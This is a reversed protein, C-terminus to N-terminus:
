EEEYGVGLYYKIFDAEGVEDIAKQIFHKTKFHLTDMKIFINYDIILKELHTDYFVYYKPISNDEWEHKNFEYAYKKVKQYVQERKSNNVELTDNGNVYDVIFREITELCDIKEKIGDKTELEVEIENSILNITNRIAGWAYILKQKENIM